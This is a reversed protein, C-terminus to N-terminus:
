LRGRAVDYILDFYEPDRQAFEVTRTYMYELGMSVIETAGTPYIKGMYPSMFRDRKTVENSGYGSNKRLSALSVQRDGQTRSDLFATAKARVAPSYDELYHGLEHVWTNNYDNPAIMLVGARGVDAFGARFGKEFLELQPSILTGDPMLVDSGKFADVSVMEQFKAIGSRARAQTTDDWEQSFFTKHYSPEMTPRLEEPVNIIAGKVENQIRQQGRIGDGLEQMRGQMAQFKEGYPKFEEYAADRAPRAADLRTRAGEVALITENNINAQFAQYAADYEEWRQDFESRAANYKGVATNYEDITQDWEPKLEDRERRLQQMKQETRATVRLLAARASAADGQALLESGLLTTVDGGQAEKEIERMRRSAERREAVTSDRTLGLGSIGAGKPASGGREGFRGFHGWNGSGPGGKIAERRELEQLVLEISKVASTLVTIM